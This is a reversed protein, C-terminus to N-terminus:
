AAVFNGARLIQICQQLVKPITEKLPFPATCGAANKHGGGGYYKALLNVAFDGRSRFSIKTNGDPMEIFMIAIKTEPLGLLYELLRETDSLGVGTERLLSQPVFLYAIAGDELTHLNAISQSILQLTGLSLTNYINDYIEMPSAGADLLEATIRHIRSTTKPLRFSATDTMIATYLGIAVTKDLLSREYYREMERILEYMLEGTAAAASRCIMVDAFEQPELHHDICVVKVKGSKKLELIHRKIARTRGINNTDLLFFLDADQLCQLHQENKEDFIWVEKMFPLFQYNRPVLTPNILTAQKGISRLAAMLAVESGLGDGDSNEHTSIVIRKAADIMEVASQWPPNEIQLTEDQKDVQHM